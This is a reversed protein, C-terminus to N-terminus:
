GLMVALVAFAMCWGAVFMNGWFKGNYKYLAINIAALSLDILATAIAM